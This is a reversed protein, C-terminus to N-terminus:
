SYLSELSEVPNLFLMAPVRNTGQLEIKLIRGMENKKMKSNWYLKRELIQLEIEDKSLNEFPKPNRRISNAKGVSAALVINQKM